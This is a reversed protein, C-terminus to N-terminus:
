APEMVVPGDSGHDVADRASELSDFEGAAVAQVMLNGISTAEAPGAVVPLGTARATGRALTTIRSGGGLLHVRRMTVGTLGAVATLSDAFAVALSDLICRVTHAPSLQRGALAALRAPMDGPARLVPDGVDIVPGGVPLAEAAALLEARRTSRDDGTAWAGLCSELLWLGSLNRLLLIRGDASAENTYGARRAREDLAPAAAICGALAWSGCSVVGDVGANSTAAVVASATDHSAVRYVPVPADAGIRDTVQAVTRGALSGAASVAPLV